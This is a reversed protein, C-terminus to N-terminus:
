AALWGVTETETLDVVGKIGCQRGTGSGKSGGVLADALHRIGGNITLTGTRIWAAAVVNPLMEPTQPARRRDQLAAVGREGVDEGLLGVTATVREDDYGAAM